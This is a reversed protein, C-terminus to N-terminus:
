LIYMLIYEAGDSSIPLFTDDQEGAKDDDENGKWLKIIMKYELWKIWLIQIMILTMNLLALTMMLKIM